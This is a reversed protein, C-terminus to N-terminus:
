NSAGQTFFAGSWELMGNIFAVEDEDSLPKPSLLRGMTMAMGVLATGVQIDNAELFQLLGVSINHAEQYDMSVSALNPGVVTITM